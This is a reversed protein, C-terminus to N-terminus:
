AALLPADHLEGAIRRRRPRRCMWALAIQRAPDVGVQGLAGRVSRPSCSLTSARVGAARHPAISSKAADRYESEAADSKTVPVAIGTSPPKEIMPQHEFRGGAFPARAAIRPGKRVHLKALGSM